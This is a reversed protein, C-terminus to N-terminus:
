FFVLLSRGRFRSPWNFEFKMHFYTLTCLDHISVILYWVQGLIGIPFHYIVTLCWLRSGLPWEFSLTPHNSWKAIKAAWVMKLSESLVGSFGLLSRLIPSRASKEFLGTCMVLIAALGLHLLVGKM